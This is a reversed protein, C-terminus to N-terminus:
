TLRCGARRRGNRRGRRGTATAPPDDSPLGPGDDSIALRVETPDATVQITASASPAHRIVNELALKWNADIKKFTADGYVSPVVQPLIQDDSRALGHGRGTVGREILSLVAQEGPRRACQSIGPM